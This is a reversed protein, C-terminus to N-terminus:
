IVESGVAPMAEWAVLDEPMPASPDCQANLEKATYCRKNKAKTLILIEGELRMLIEDNMSLGMQELIPKPITVGQSNGFKQIAKRM